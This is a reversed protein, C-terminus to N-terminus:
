SVPRDSIEDHVQNGCQSCVAEKLVLGFCKDSVGDLVRSLQGTKLRAGKAILFYKDVYRSM